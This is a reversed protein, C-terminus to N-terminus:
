QMPQLNQFNKSWLVAESVEGEAASHPGRDDVDLVDRYSKCTVELGATIVVAVIFAWVAGLLSLGLEVIALFSFRYVVNKGLAKQGGRTGASRALRLRLPPEIVDQFNSPRDRGVTTPVHHHVSGSSGSPRDRCLTTPM